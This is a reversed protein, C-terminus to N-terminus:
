PTALVELTITGDSSKSTAPNISFLFEETKEQGPELEFLFDSRDWQFAKDNEIPKFIFNLKGKIKKNDLNKFRLRLLTRELFKVRLAQDFSSLEMRLEPSIKSSIQLLIQKSISADLGQGPQYKQNSWRTIGVVLFGFLIIATFGLLVNSKM